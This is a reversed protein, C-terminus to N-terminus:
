PPPRVAALAAAATARDGTVWRRGRLVVLGGIIVLPTVILFANAIHGKVEGDVILEFRDAIVGILLPSAAGAIAGLFGTVSFAIGRITAPVVEAIMAALAPGGAVIFAVGVVQLPMRLLLPTPLFSGMLALAGLVQATGAVLMPAGEYRPRLRDCLLGGLYTGTLAGILILGGTVGAAAGSGLSTHREYFAPAWFALGATAGSAVASGIMLSRLTRVRVCKRIDVMLSRVGRREDITAPEAEADAVPPELLPDPPAIEIGEVDSEGRAPERMRWMALALLSGPVGVILFAWRWGFLAGVGGGLGTGLATGVIPAVRVYAYARGRVQPPYFDAMLSSSAPNDITEGVGLASRVVLFQWYSRVGANLASIAGWSALVVAIIRTRRYRDALYGAPLVALFGMLVFVSGLVGAAGDGFGLDDQVKTLVGPLIGRDVSDILAVLALIRMPRRGYSGWARDKVRRKRQKTTEPPRVAWDDENGYDYAVAV